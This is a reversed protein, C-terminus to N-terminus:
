SLSFRVRNISRDSFIVETIRCLPYNKWQPVWVKLLGARRTPPTRGRVWPPTKPTGCGAIDPPWQLDRVSWCVSRLCPFM